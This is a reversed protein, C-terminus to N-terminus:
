ERPGGFIVNALTSVNADAAVLTFEYQGEPIDVQVPRNTQGFWLDPVSGLAQTGFWVEVAGQKVSCIILSVRRNPRVQYSTGYVGTVKRSDVLHVNSTTTHNM